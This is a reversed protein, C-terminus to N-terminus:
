TFFRAGELKPRAEARRFMSAGWRGAEDRVQRRAHHKVAPARGASSSGSRGAPDVPVEFSWGDGLVKVFHTDFHGVLTVREGNLVRHECTMREVPASKLVSAVDM